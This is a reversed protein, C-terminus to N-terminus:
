FFSSQVRDRGGLCSFFWTRAGRPTFPQAVGSVPAARCRPGLADARNWRESLKNVILPAAAARGGRGRGPGGRGAHPPPSAPLRGPLDSPLRSQSSPSARGGRPKERPGSGWCPRRGRGARRGRASARPRPPPAAGSMSRPPRVAAGTVHPAPGPAPGPRPPPALPPAPGGRVGQSKGRFHSVGSGGTAPLRGRQRGAGPDQSFADLDRNGGKYVPYVASM